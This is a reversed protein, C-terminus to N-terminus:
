VLDWVGEIERAISRAASVPDPAAHIPRGIVLYDAGRMIAEGPTNVRAQDCRESGSPRVGPTVILFGRSPIAARIAQTESPAAVVGDCGADRAMLALHTTYASMSSNVKLEYRLEDESLSTLVTVGLILPREIGLDEAECRATEVAAQMMARGGMTHVTVCWAGTKVIGRMAGAVTNPIDHLKADLFIRKAGASRLRSLTEVPAIGSNILELGAKFVGVDNKLLEVMAVARDVTPVDLPLIIHEYSKM